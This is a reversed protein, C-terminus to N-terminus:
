TYRVCEARANIKFELILQKFSKLSGSTEMNEPVQEMNESSLVTEDM